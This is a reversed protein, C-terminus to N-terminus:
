MLSARVLLYERYKNGGLKIVGALVFTHSTMNYERLWCLSPVVVIISSKMIVNRFSKQFHTYSRLSPLELDM